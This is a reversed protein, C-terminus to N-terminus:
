RPRELVFLRSEILRGLDGHQDLLDRYAKKRRRTSPRLATETRQLLSLARSALLARALLTSNLHLPTAARGPTRTGVIFGTQRMALSWDDARWRSQSAQRLGFASLCRENAADIEADSATTRWVAENIACRGGPKLARYIEALITEPAGQGQIGIVSEVYIRDCTRDAIPLAIADGRMLTVQRRLGCWRVRRKAIALMEPLLDIGILRAGFSAAIRVLTAGPGCGIELVTHESRIALAEILRMSAAAGGPHIDIAGSVAIQRLFHM